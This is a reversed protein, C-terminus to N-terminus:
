NTSCPISFGRTPPEIGDRPVAFGRDKGRSEQKKPRGPLGALGGLDKRETAGANCDAASPIVGRLRAALEDASLKGYVTQVMRTSSPVGEARLWHSHTRRLDNPSCPAIQAAKCAAILDRRINGWRGFLRGDSGEAFKVAYALLSKQWSTVIPVTRWRSPRKTGRLLVRGIEQDVDEPLVHDSESACASTALILAVRVACDARLHALLKQVEAVPLWRERPKYEPSFAVPMIEGLDGKWLGARKALKLAARLTVLEKSITNEGVKEVRRRSIYADVHHARLTHLPFPKYAGDDPVGELIRILHGSKM